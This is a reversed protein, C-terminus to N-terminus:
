YRVVLLCGGGATNFFEKIILEFGVDFLETFGVSLNSRLRYHSTLQGTNTRRRGWVSAPPGRGRRCAFGPAGDIQLFFGKIIEVFQPKDEQFFAIKEDCLRKAELGLWLQDLLEAQVGALLFYSISSKLIKNTLTPSM